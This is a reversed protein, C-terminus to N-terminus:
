CNGASRMTATISGTTTATRSYHPKNNNNNNNNNNHHHHLPVGFPSTFPLHYDRFSIGGTYPTVVSFQVTPCGFPYLFFSTQIYVRIPVLM